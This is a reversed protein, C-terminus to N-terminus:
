IVVPIRVTFTNNDKIITIDKGTILVCRRSLNSLGIGSSPDEDKKPVVPNSVEIYEGHQRVTITMPRGPTISNHKIVNEALLQLTLPPIMWDSCDTESIYECKICDGLRVKHLFIYSQMFELEDGFPVLKKDQSQLVYRYVCSLHRTFSVANDPNYRIEAILTNLCNFLFHPNLQGQLAAFKARENELQLEATRHKLQQNAQIARNFLLLGVVVLEVLWIILLLTWGNRAIHWVPRIGALIKALLFLGYNLLFFLVIVALYVAAIKWKSCAKRQYQSNVWESLKLTTFGLLNFTVISFLLAGKTYVVESMAESFDTYNVLLLFSFCGLGTFILPYIFRNKKM